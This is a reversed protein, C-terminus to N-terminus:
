IKEKPLQDLAKKLRAELENIKTLEEPVTEGWIMGPVPQAAKSERLKITNALENELHIRYQQRLAATARGNRQAEVFKNEAMALRHKIDPLASEHKQKDERDLNRNEWNQGLRQNLGEERGTGLKEKVRLKEREIELEEPSKGTTKNQQSRARILAALVSAGGKAPLQLQPEPEIPVGDQFYASGLGPGPGLTTKLRPPAQRRPNAQRQATLAEAVKARMANSKEAQAMQRGIVDQDLAAVGEDNLPANTQFKVGPVNARAMPPEEGPPMIARLPRPGPTPMPAQPGVMPPEGTEPIPARQGPTYPRDLYAGSSKDEQERIITQTLPDIHSMVDRNRRQRELKQVMANPDRDYAAGFAVAEQRRREEELEEATKELPPADWIGIM